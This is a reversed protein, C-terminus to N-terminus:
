AGTPARHQSDSYRRAIVSNVKRELPRLVREAAARARWYPMWRLLAGRMMLGRRRWGLNRYQNQFYADEELDWKRIFHKFSALDWDDSWRLAFYPVDALDMHIPPLYTIHSRPEIYISGGAATIAMCFDLNERTSLMKEDLGGIRRFDGTRVMMCHFEACGTRQRGAPVRKFIKDVVHRERHGNVDQEAVGAEGGSFHVNTHLPRSEFNLPGVISAGTAEACEILPGLWGKAVVVDNDVFAIYRTQVDRAGLNRATNPSLYHETRILRFGRATSQERLYRAVPPPSKGDVYVLDFPVDTSAYISELSERADGFHDRPVVVITAHPAPM